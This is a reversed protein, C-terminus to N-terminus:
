GRRRRWVWFGRTVLLIVAGLVIKLVSSHHNSALLVFDHM